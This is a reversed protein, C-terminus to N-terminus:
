PDTLREDYPLAHICLARNLATYGDKTGERIWRMMRGMFTQIQGDTPSRNALVKGLTARAM